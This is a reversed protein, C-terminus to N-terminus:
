SRHEGALRSELQPLIRKLHREIRLLCEEYIEPSGGMPDHVGEAVGGPAAAFESLLYVHGSRAPVLRRAAEVHEREMGFVLDAGRVLDATLRQARHASLDLGRAAGAAIAATTAPSGPDAAIGASAATVLEGLGRPLLEIMLAEALPSRCTNGTCVFLVKFSRDHHSV